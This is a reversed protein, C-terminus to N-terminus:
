GPSSTRRMSQFTVARVVAGMDTDMDWLSREGRPQEEVYRRRHREAGRLAALGIDGLADREGDAVERGLAAVPQSRSTRRAPQDAHWRPDTAVTQQRGQQQGDIGRCRWGGGLRGAGNRGRAGETERRRGGAAAAQDDQDGVKAPRSVPQPGQSRDGCSVWTM